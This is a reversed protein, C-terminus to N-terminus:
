KAPQSSRLAAVTVGLLVTLVGVAVVAMAIHVGTSSVEAPDWGYAKAYQAAVLARQRRGAAVVWGIVGGVLLLAGTVIMGAPRMGGLTASELSQYTLRHINTAPRETDTAMVAFVAPKVAPMDFTDADAFVAAPETLDDNSVPSDLM